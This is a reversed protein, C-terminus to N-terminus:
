RSVEKLKKEYIENIKKAINEDGNKEDPHYIEMLKRYRQKLSEMDNCNKFLDEDKSGNYNSQNTQSNAEYYNKKTEIINKVFSQNLNEMLKLDNRVQNITENHNYVGVYPSSFFISLKDILNKIDHYYMEFKEHYYAEYAFPTKFYTGCIYKSNNILNNFRKREIDVAEGYTILGSNNDKKGKKRRIEFSFDKESVYWAIHIIPIVILLIIATIDNIIEENFPSISYFLISFGVGLMFSVIIFILLGIINDLKWSIMFLAIIIIIGILVAYVNNKFLYFTKNIYIWFSSSAIVELWFLLEM